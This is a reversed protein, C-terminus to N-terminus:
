TLNKSRSTCTFRFSTGRARDCVVQQQPASGFQEEAVPEGPQAVQRAAELPGRENLELRRLARDAVGDLARARPLHM